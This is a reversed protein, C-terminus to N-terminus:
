RFRVGGRRRQDPVPQPCQDFTAVDAGQCQHAVSSRINREIRGLEFLGLNRKASLDTEAEGDFVVPRLHGSERDVVYDVVAAAGPELSWVGSELSWVGFTNLNVVASTAGPSITFIV